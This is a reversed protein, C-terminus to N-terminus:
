RRGDAPVVGARGTTEIRVVESERLRLQRNGPLTVIMWNGKEELKTGRVQDGGKLTLVVGNEDEAGAPRVAGSDLRRPERAGGIRAVARDYSRDVTAAYDATSQQAIVGAMAAKLVGEDGMGTALSRTVTSRDGGIAAPFAGYAPFAGVSAFPWTGRGWAGPPYAAFTSFTTGTTDIGYLTQQVLRRYPELRRESVVYERKLDSLDRLYGTENELREMERLSAAEGPSADTAVYRVTRTGGNYIEIRSVGNRTQAAVPLASLLAALAAFLPLVTRM